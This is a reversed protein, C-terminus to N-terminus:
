LKVARIEEPTMICPLKKEKALKRAKALHERFTVPNFYVSATRKTKNKV